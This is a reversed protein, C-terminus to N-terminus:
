ARRLPGRRAPPARRLERRRPRRLVRRDAPGPAPGPPAPVRRGTVDAEALVAVKASPCSSGAPSRPWWWAPGRRAPRRTSAGPAHVGEEALVASLRAPGAATRRVAHGTARPRGARTVQGALRAPDGAVPDFGGCRRGGADDPGEPSRRCPSSAPRARRAAPPRLAPAPAPLETRTARGDAGWTAALTEALAAEEDLLEVARDRMRRPEVLVVQADPRCCTPCSSARRRRALAAVVGHRRLERGRGAAGVAGRGLARRAVLAPRGRACARRDLVLERCGFLEVADLDDSSRQDGVAFATLRDVEDGWLDIRVPVDATSPFVDVIGGRM